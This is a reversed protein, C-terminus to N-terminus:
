FGFLCLESVLMLINLKSNSEIVSVDRIKDGLYSQAACIYCAFHDNIMMQSM